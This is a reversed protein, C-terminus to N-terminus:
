LYKVGASVLACKKGNSIVAGRFIAVGNEFKLLEVEAVVESFNEIVGLYDSKVKGLVFPAHLGGGNFLSILFATQCVQETLLSGPIVAGGFHGEILNNNKRYDFVTKAANKTVAIIKSILLFSGKFPLEKLLEDTINADM